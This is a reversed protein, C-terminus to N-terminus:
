KTLRCTSGALFYVSWHQLATEVLRSRALTHLILSPHQVAGPCLPETKHHCRSALWFPVLGGPPFSIGVEEMGSCKLYM